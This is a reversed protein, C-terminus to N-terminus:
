IVSKLKEEIGSTQIVNQWAYSRVDPTKFNFDKLVDLDIDLLSDDFYFFKSHTMKEFQGVWAYRTSVIKLNLACYELLKTSTQLNFPYVDPIMNIGYIAKSALKPVEYYKIKGTFKINKTSKYKNYIDDPVFGILVISKGSLKKKFLDLLRDIKREKSITGLYVFDYEKEKSESFFHEAIGMDRLSCPVDDKFSFEDRVLENLFIRLDPRINILKKVTNKVRPLQGTSISNYEHIKIRDAKERDFGTFYWLIDYNNLHYDNIDICNILEFESKGNFHNKYAEIEPLYSIGKHILLVKKKSNELNIRPIQQLEIRKEPDTVRALLISNYLSEYHGTITEISFHKRIRGCAKQGIEERENQELNLLEEWAKAMVEPNKPPVVKGTDGVIYSSDGVDTVVCPIGCAMAEGVANSFGEGYSSSSTAIDLASTVKPM